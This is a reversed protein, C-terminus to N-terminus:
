DVDFSYDTAATVGQDFGYMPQQSVAYTGGGDPVTYSETTSKLVFKGSTDWVSALGAIPGSCLAAIIAATYQYENAGKGFVGKGGQPQVAQAQFDGYWLLSASLRDQGIVIPQAIGLVSETVRIHQLRNVKQTNGFLGM